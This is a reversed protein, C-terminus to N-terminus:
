NTKLLKKNCKKFSLTKIDKDTMKDVMKQIVCDSDYNLMNIKNYLSNYTNFSDLLWPTEAIKFDNLGALGLIRTLDIYFEGIFEIKKYTSLTSSLHNLKKTKRKVIEKEKEENFYFQKNASLHKLIQFQYKKISSFAQFNNKLLFLTKSFEKQIVELEM